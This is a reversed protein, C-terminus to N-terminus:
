EKTTLNKRVLFSKGCYVCAKRKGTLISDKSQYKMTNKCKPCRLLFIRM